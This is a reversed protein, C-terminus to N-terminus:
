NLPCRLTQLTATPGETLLRDAAADLTLYWDCVEWSGQEEACREIIPAVAICLDIFGVWGSLDDRWRDIWDTFRSDGAMTAGLAVATQVDGLRPAREATMGGRRAGTADRWDLDFKEAWWRVFVLPSSGSDFAQELPGTDGCLDAWRACLHVQCLHDVEACWRHFANHPRM